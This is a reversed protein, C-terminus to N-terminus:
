FKENINKYIQVECIRGVDVNEVMNVDFFAKHYWSFPFCLTSFPPVPTQFWLEPLYVSPYCVHMM